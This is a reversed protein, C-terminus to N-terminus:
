SLFSFSRASRNTGLAEAVDDEGIVVEVGVPDVMGVVGMGRDEGAILGIVVM